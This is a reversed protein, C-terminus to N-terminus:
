SGVRNSTTLSRSSVVLHLKSTLHDGGMLVGPPNRVASSEASKNCVVDGRSPISGVCLLFLAM